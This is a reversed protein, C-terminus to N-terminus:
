GSCCQRIAETLKTKRMKKEKFKEKNSFRANPQYIWNSGRTYKGELLDRLDKGIIWVCTPDIDVDDIIPRVYRNWSMPVIKKVVKNPLRKKVVETPYSKKNGMYCAHISADLLWIGQKKVTNLVNTSYKVRTVYNRQHKLGILDAFLDIYQKTGPNNRIKNPFDLINSEGYGLCYVLKVFGLPGNAPYTSALREPIISVKLEEASTRVHSEAVLVFKVNKPKWFWRYEEVALATEVPEPNEDENKLIQSGIQHAVILKKKHNEPLYVNKFNVELNINSVVTKPNAPRLYYPDIKSKDILCAGCKPCFM